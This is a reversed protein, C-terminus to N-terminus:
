VSKLTRLEEKDVYVRKDRGILTLTLSHYITNSEDKAFTGQFLFSSADGDSYFSGVKEDFSVYITEPLATKERYSFVSKLDEPMAQYRSYVEDLYQTARDQVLTRTNLTVLGLVSTTLTTGILAFIFFAAVSEIMSAGRRFLLPKSKASVFKVFAKEGFPRSLLDDYVYPLKLPNLNGVEKALNRDYSRLLLSFEEKAKKAFIVKGYVTMARAYFHEILESKEKEEKSALDHLNMPSYLYGRLYKEQYFFLSTYYRNITIVAQNGNAERVREELLFSPTIHNVKVQIREFLDKMKQLDEAPILFTQSLFGHGDESPLYRSYLSFRKAYDAGYLDGLDNKTFLSLKRSSVKPLDLESVLIRDSVYIVDVSVYKSLQHRLSEVDEEGQLYFMDPGEGGLLHVAKRGELDIYKVQLVSM